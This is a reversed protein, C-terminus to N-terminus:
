RGFGGGTRGGGTRGGGPQGGRGGGGPQGGGGFPNGGQGGGGQQLRQQIAQRFADEQAKRQADAAGNDGGSQPNNGGTSRGSTSSRTVHVRPMLSGLTQQLIATNANELPVVRITRRAILAAEDLDEVMVKIQNFLPESASVILRSSRSDVGITLKVNARAGGGGGGMLAALPNGGGGGGGRQQQQQAPPTMEEKYVDEIIEAVDAIDAHKVVIYRPARERLQEPLESADLIKLMEECENVLHPPGTVFLSNSRTDPIIRLTTASNMLGDLGSMNMVSRGMSSIGSTLDGFMGGSNASSASSVSSTPFIRELIAATETADSSQLYFVTWNNSPPIAQSLSQVLEEIEDLAKEDQSIVVLNGGQVTILIPSKGDTGADSGGLGLVAELDTKAGADSADGADQQFNVNFLGSNKRLADLSAEPGRRDSAPRVNETPTRGAEGGAAPQRDLPEPDLPRSRFSPVRRDAGTASPVVIRIPNKSSREFMGKLLEAMEEADRGGLPITRVNGSGSPGGGVPELESVLLKIQDVQQQTGRVILGNANPNPQIIPASDGDLLFLSQISATATFADMRALPIVAAVITNGGEGDLRKILPAIEDHLSQPGHIHIRRARGDENVVAGPFLVNLTKTVEITDASKLQYVELYPQRNRSNFGEVAPVDIAAITEEIIKLSTPSATILLTNTREDVAVQVAGDGDAPTAPTPTSPRSYRPDRSSSYRSDNGSGASVNGVGRAPLGFLERIVIDADLVSIETLQIKKFVTDGTDIESVLLDHIRTLNAGTDTIHIRNTRALSTAKGWPGLLPDIEAVADAAVIGEVKMLMTLMENRGHKPLDEPTIIPLLNPPIPRDMSLTVLFEDRKVLLYGKQLLYGNIVDLAESPTYEKKDYYNFTGPPIVSPDLTLGSADAFMRLVDVWPAFRFNFSMKEVAQGPEGGFSLVPDGQADVTVAGVTASPALAYASGPTATSGATSPGRPATPGAAPGRGGGAEESFEFKAGQKGEFTQLQSASLVSKIIKDRNAELEAQKKERDEDSLDRLRRLEFRAVDYESLAAQVKTKQDDSIGLDTAVSDGRLASYGQRQLTLEQMRKVQNANLQSEVAKTSDERAKTFAATREEQSMDRMNRFMEFMKERQATQAEEIQKIQDATIGLEQRVDDRSLIDGGGFGGGFGGPAGGGFGGFSPRGGGESGRGGGGDRGGGPQAEAEPAVMAAVLLLTVVGVLTHSFRMM